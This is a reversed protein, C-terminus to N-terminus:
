LLQRQHRPHRPLHEGRRRHRRHQLPLALQHHPRHGSGRRPVRRGRDAARLEGVPRAGGQQQHVHHQRGARRGAAHHGPQDLHRHRLHRRRRLRGPQERLALRHRAAGLQRRPHRRRRSSPYHNPVNTRNNTFTGRYIYATAFQELAMAAGAYKSTNGSWVCDFFFATSGIAVEIGGGGTTPTAATTRSAASTSPRRRADAHDRRRRPRRHHHRRQPLHATRLDGAPRHRPQLQHYRVLDRTGGGDLVVTAGTAARITFAAAPTTSSSATPRRRTPAPRWSSSAATPCRISPPSCTPSTAPSTSSAARRWPRLCAPPPRCPPTATPTPTRVHRM